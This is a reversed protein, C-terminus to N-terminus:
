PREGQANACDEVRSKFAPMVEHIFLELSRKALEHRLGFSAGYCFNEVGCKEYFRLKRIVEDPTGFINYERVNQPAYEGRNAIKAYDVPEPFGMRVPGINKFLNEFYRGYNIAADVPAKWGDNSEYVCTRRLMLFRPRKVGPNGALAAEFKEGLIQVEATPRSLPTSMIHAGHSPWDFTEIRAAVWIPPFPKQLPRPGSTTLPLSWYEGKHEYDGSWLGKVAPLMEKMYAVGREQPIGGAMRDFEYQYAGRGIGFELRGNSMVDVLAAEGAVRIPHWYPAVVVATGLRINNTHAAWQALVVFPNPGITFEITHHEPTWAIEFGGAEAMQVLELARAQVDRMDMKPDFRELSISISFKMAVKEQESRRLLQAFGM